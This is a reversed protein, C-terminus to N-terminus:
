LRKSNRRLYFLLKSQCQKEIISYFINQYINNIFFCVSLCMDMTM